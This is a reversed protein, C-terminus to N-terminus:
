PVTGGTAPMKMVTAAHEDTWYVTGQYVAVSSPHDQGSALTFLCSGGVTTCEPAQARADLGADGSHATGQGGGTATQKGGCGTAGLVMAFLPSFAFPLWGLKTL